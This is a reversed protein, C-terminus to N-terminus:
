RAFTRTTPAQFILVESRRDGLKEILETLTNAVAVIKYRRLALFKGPYSAAEAPISSPPLEDGSGEDPDVHGLPVSFLDTM